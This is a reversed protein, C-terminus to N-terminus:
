TSRRPPTGATRGRVRSGIVRINDLTTAVEEQNPASTDQAFAPSIVASAALTAVV